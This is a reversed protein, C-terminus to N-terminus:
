SSRQLASTEFQFRVSGRGIQKFRSRSEEGMPNPLELVMWRDPSFVFPVYLIRYQRRGRPPLSAAVRMENPTLEFEGADALSSKVEYLWDTQRTKVCFDYGASDDGEDGGFFQARNRSIWCTEDVAEGYVRRLYQFVLWESALGMAQRQEEPPKRKRGTGRRTGGGAHQGGGGLQGFETLRPRRSREFWGENVAINSEALEQFTAAFSPGAPDLRAGAFDISREEVVKREREKQRRQAEEKISDADLGLSSAELTQPMGEPWCGARSCLAPIQRDDVLDFDLLGLNELHRAVAQPDESRWPDSVAIGNSRCWASVVPIGRSAFERTAKRNRDLLGRVSPLDVEEDQGLIEDLM